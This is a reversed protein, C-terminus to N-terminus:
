CSCSLTLNITQPGGTHVGWWKFDVSNGANIVEASSNQDSGDCVRWVGGPYQIEAFFFQDENDLKGLTRVLNSSGVPVDFRDEIAWPGFTFPKCRVFRVAWPGPNTAVLAWANHDDDLDIHYGIVDYINDLTNNPAHSGVQKGDRELKRIRAM